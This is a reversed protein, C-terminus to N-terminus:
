QAPPLEALANKILQLSDFCDAPAVGWTIEPNKIFTALEARITAFAAPHHRLCSAIGVQNFWAATGARAPHRQAQAFVRALFAPRAAVPTTNWKAAATSGWVQGTLKTGVNQLDGRSAFSLWLAVWATFPGHGYLRVGVFDGDLVPIIQRFLVGTGDRAPTALVALDGAPTRACNVEDTGLARYFVEGNKLAFAPRDGAPGRRRALPAVMKGFEALTRPILQHTTLVTDALALAEAVQSALLARAWTPATARPPPPPLQPPLIGSRTALPAALGAQRASLYAALAIRVTDGALYAAVAQPIGPPWAQAVQAAPVAHLATVTAELCPNGDLYAWLIEEFDALRTM